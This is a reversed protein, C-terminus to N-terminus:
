VNYYKFILENHIEVDRDRDKTRVRFHYDNVNLSEINQQWRHFKAAWRSLPIIPINWKQLYAGIMVDDTWLNVIPEDIIRKILDCSLTYCAGSPFRIQGKHLGIFAACCNEKPFTKCLELYKDFRIFSSINPRMVFDYKHLEDYMFKFVRLTKESITYYSEEVNILIENDRKLIPCDISTDSKYFFCDFEPHSNMYKKWCLQFNKYHPTNDSALILVLIKM